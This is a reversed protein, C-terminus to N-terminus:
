GGQQRRLPVGADGRDGSQDGQVQVRLLPLTSRRILRGPSRVSLSDHVHRRRVNRLRRLPLQAQARRRARPARVLRQPLHHARRGHRAAGRPAGAGARRAVRGGAAAGGGGAIVVEADVLSGAM